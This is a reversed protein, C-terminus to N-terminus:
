ITRAQRLVLWFFALMEIFIVFMQRTERELVNSTVFYQDKKASLHLVANRIWLDVDYIKLHKMMNTVSQYELTQRPLNLKQRWRRDATPWQKGIPFGSCMYPCNLVSDGM